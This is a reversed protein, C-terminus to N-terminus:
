LQQIEWVRDERHCHGARHSTGHGTALREHLLRRSLSEARRVRVNGHRRQRARNHHYVDHLQPAALTADVAQKSLAAPSQFAPPSTALSLVAAGGTLATLIAM